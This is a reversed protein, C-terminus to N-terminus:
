GRADVARVVLAGALAATRLRLLWCGAEPVDVISPYVMEDQRGDHELAAVFEQRFSGRGDLRTGLLELTPGSNRRVWWPVKMNRDGDHGHTTLTAPGSAQWPWPGRIGSSRPRAYATGSELPTADCRLKAPTRVVRAVLRASGIPTTITLRWCGASPFRLEAVVDATTAFRFSGRGDLRRARGVGSRTWVINTGSTWAVLGGSRNVRSDRLSRWYTPLFGVIGPDQPLALM